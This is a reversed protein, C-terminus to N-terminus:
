KSRKPLDAAIAKILEATFEKDDIDALLMPKAGDYPNERPLSRSGALRLATKTPKLLFRDDYVGGVLKGGYYILYEGMMPRYSIDGLGSLQDLVFGLYEKDSAMKDGTHRVVSNPVPVSGRASDKM